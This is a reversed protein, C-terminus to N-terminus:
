ISKGTLLDINITQIFTDDSKTEKIVIGIKNYNKMLHYGAYMSPCLIVLPIEWYKKQENTYYLGGGMFLFSTFGRVTTYTRMNITYKLQNSLERLISM